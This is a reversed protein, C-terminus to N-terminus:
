GQSVFLETLANRLSSTRRNVKDLGHNCFATMVVITDARDVRADFAPVRVDESDAFALDFCSGFEKRVADHQANPLGVLLVRRLAPKTAASKVPAGGVVPAEIPKPAEAGRALPEPALRQSVLAHLAEIAKFVQRDRERSAADLEKVETLLDCFLDAMDATVGGGFGDLASAMALRMAGTQANSHAHAPDARAALELEIAASAAAEEYLVAHKGRRYVPEIKARLLIAGALQGTIKYKKGLDSPSILQM